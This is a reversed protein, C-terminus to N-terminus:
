VPLSLPHAVPFDFLFYHSPLSFSVKKQDGDGLGPISVEVIKTAGRNTATGDPILNQREAEIATAEPVVAHWLGNLEPDGKGMAHMDVDGNLPSDLLIGYEPVLLHGDYRRPQSATDAEKAVLKKQQNWECCHGVFDKPEEGTTLYKQVQTCWRDTTVSQTTVEELVTSLCTICAFGQCLGCRLGKTSALLEV